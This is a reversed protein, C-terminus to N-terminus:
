DHQSKNLKFFQNKMTIFKSKMFNETLNASCGATRKIETMSLERVKAKSTSTFRKFHSSYTEIDIGVKEVINM